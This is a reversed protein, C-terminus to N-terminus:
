FRAEHRPELLALLNVAFAEHGANTLHLGDITSGPVRLLINALFRRPIFTVGYKKAIRRQYYLFRYEGPPFPIEFMIVPQSVPFSRLLTELAIGYKERRNEHNVRFDNGGLEILVPVTPDIVNERMVMGNEMLSGAIALNIVQVRGSDNILDPYITISEDGLGATLSDGLLYIQNGPLDIKSFRFHPLELFFSVLCWCLVLSSGASIWLNKQPFKMVGMYIVVVGIGWVYHVVPLPTSSLGTIALGFLFIINRISGPIKSRISSLCVSITILCLGIWFMWGSVLIYLLNNLM